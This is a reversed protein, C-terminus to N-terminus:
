RGALLRAQASISIVLISTSPPGMSMDPKWDMSRRKPWCCCRPDVMCALNIRGSHRKWPSTSKDLRLRSGRNLMLRGGMCRSSVESYIGAKSSGEVDVCQWSDTGGLGAIGPEAGEEPGSVGEPEGRLLFDDAFESELCGAWAVGDSSVPTKNMGHKCQSVSERRWLM